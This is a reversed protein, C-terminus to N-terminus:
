QKGGKLETQDIRGIEFPQECLMKPDTTFAMKFGSGQLLNIIDENYKGNPYSYCSPIVGLKRSLLSVSMTIDDIQFGETAHYYGHSGIDHNKSLQDIDPWSLYREEIFEKEDWISSFLESILHDFKRPIMVFDRTYRIFRDKPTYWPYQNLYDTDAMISIGLTKCISDILKDQHEIEIYRQKDIACMKREELSLMYPLFIGRIGSDELIPAVTTIHDKTGHDFTLLFANAPLPDSKYFYNNLDRVTIPTGKRMLNDLQGKFRKV